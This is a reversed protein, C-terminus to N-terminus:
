DRTVEGACDRVVEHREDDLTPLTPNFSLSTGCAQVPELHAPPRLHGGGSATRSCTRSRCGVGFGSGPGGFCMLHADPQDSPHSRRAQRRCRRRPVSASPRRGGLRSHLYAHHCPHLPHPRLPAAGVPAITPQAPSSLCPAHALDAGPTGATETERRESSPKGRVILSCMGRRM